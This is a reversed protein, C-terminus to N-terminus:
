EIQKNVYAIRKITTIIICEKSNNKTKTYKEHKCADTVSILSISFSVDDSKKVIGTDSFNDFDFGDLGNIGIYLFGLCYL